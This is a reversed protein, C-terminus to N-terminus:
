ISDEMHMTCWSFLESKRAVDMRAWVSSVDELQGGRVASGRSDRLDVNSAKGAGIMGSEDRISM